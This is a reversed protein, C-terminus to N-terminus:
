DLVFFLCPVSVIVNFVLCAAFHRSEKADAFCAIVVVLVLALVGTPVDNWPCLLSTVLKDLFRVSAFFVCVNVAASMKSNTAEERLHM